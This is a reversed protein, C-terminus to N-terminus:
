RALAMCGLLLVLIFLVVFQILILLFYSKGAQYLDPCVDDGSSGVSFIWVCIGVTEAICQLLQICSCTKPQSNNEGKTECARFIDLVLEITMIWYFSRVATDCELGTSQGYATTLLWWFVFKAFGVVVIALLPLVFLLCGVIATFLHCLSQLAASPVYNDSRGTRRQPPQSNLIAQSKTPHLRPVFQPQTPHFTTLIAPEKTEVLTGPSEAMVTLPPAPTPDGGENPQEKSADEEKPKGPNGVSAPQNLTSANSSVDVQREQKHLKHGEEMAVYSFCDDEDRPNSTESTGNM